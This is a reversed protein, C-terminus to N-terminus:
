KSERPPRRIVKWRAQNSLIQGLDTIASLEFTAATGPMSFGTGSGGKRRVLATAMGLASAGKLDLVSDSVFLSSRPKANISSLASEYIRRNPKYARINQSITISDFTKGLELRSVLRKTEVSDGDTVLGLGSSLDRIRALWQVSVDSCFQARLEFLRWVFGVLRSAQSGQIRIGESLLVEQLTKGAIVKESAFRKGQHWPIRRSTRRSWLAAVEGAKSSPLRFEKGVVQRAASLLGELDLLTGGFDFFVVPKITM